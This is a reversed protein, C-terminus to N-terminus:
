SWQVWPLRPFHICGLCLSGREYKCCSRQLTWAATSLVTVQSSISEPPPLPPSRGSLSVGLSAVATRTADSVSSALEQFHSNDVLMAALDVEEPEEAAENFTLSLYRLLLMLKSDYCGATRM